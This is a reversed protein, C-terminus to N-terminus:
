TGGRSIGALSDQKLIQHESRGYSRNELPVRLLVLLIATCKKLLLRM